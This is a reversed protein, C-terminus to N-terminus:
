SSGSAILEFIRQVSQVIRDILSSAQEHDRDAKDKQQSYESILSGLRQYEHDLATIEANNGKENHSSIGTFAKAFGQLGAGVANSSGGFFASGVELGVEIGSLILGTKRCLVSVKADTKLSQGDQGHERAKLFIIKIEFQRERNANCVELIITEIEKNSNQKVRDGIEFLNGYGAPIEAPKVIVEM